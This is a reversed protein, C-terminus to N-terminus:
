VGYKEDFNIKKLVEPANLCNHQRTLSSNLRNLEFILDCNNILKVIYKTKEKNIYLINELKHHRFIIKKENIINNLDKMIKRIEDIGKKKNSLFYIMNEDCLEMVIAFEEKTNFYEYFKVTNINNKNDGESIKM